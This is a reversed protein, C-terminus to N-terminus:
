NTQNPLINGDWAATIASFILTSLEVACFVGPSDHLFGPSLPFAQYEILSSDIM